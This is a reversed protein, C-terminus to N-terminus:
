VYKVIHCLLHCFSSSALAVGITVPKEGMERKEIRGKREKRKTKNRGKKAPANGDANGDAKM